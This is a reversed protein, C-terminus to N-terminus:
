IADFIILCADLYVLDYHAFHAVALTWAKSWLHFAQWSSLNLFHILAVLDGSYYGCAYESSSAEVRLCLFLLTDPLPVTNQIHFLPAYSDSNDQCHRWLTALVPGKDSSVVTWRGNSGDSRGGGVTGSVDGWVFM